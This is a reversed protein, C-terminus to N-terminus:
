YTAASPQNVFDALLVIRQEQLLILAALQLLGKTRIGLRSARAGSREGSWPFSVGGTSPRLGTLANPQIDRSQASSDLSNLSMPRRCHRRRELPGNPPRAPLSVGFKKHFLLRM